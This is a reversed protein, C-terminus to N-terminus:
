GGGRRNSAPRWGQGGKPSDAKCSPAPRAM